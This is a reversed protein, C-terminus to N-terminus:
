EVFCTANLVEKSIVVEYTPLWVVKEESIKKQKRLYKIKIHATDKYKSLIKALAVFVSDGVYIPIAINDGIYIDKNFFDTGVKIKKM